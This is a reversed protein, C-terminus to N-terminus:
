KSLWKGLPSDKKATKCMFFATSLGVIVGIVDNALIVFIGIAM